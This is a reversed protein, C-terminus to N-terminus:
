TIKLIKLMLDLQYQTFLRKRYLFLSSIILLEVSILAYRTNFFVLSTYEKLVNFTIFAVLSFLPPRFSYGQDIWKMELLRICIGNLVFGYIITVLIQAMIVIEISYYLSSLSALSIGLLYFIKARISYKFRNKSRILVDSFAAITIFPSAFVFLKILRDIDLWVAGYFLEIILIAESHMVFCIHTVGLLVLGVISSYLKFLKKNNSQLRSFLSFLFGNTLNGLFRPPLFTLYQAKEFNALFSLPLTKGLILKDIKGSVLSLLRIVTFEKGFKIFFSSDKINFERFSINFPNLCYSLLSLLLHLALQAYIFAKIEYGFHALLFGIIIYGVFYALGNVIFIKKFEFKRQLLALSISGLSALILTLGILKIDEVNLRSEFFSSLYPSVVFLIFYLCLGIISNIVFANNIDKKDIEAKQVLAAGLGFQSFMLLFNNLILLITYEGHVEKPIYRAMVM